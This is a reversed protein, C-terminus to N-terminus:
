VAAKPKRTGVRADPDALQAGVAFLDRQIAHLLDRSPGSPAHARAVGVAASLEDVDGYAAVRPDDKHVRSGDILGTEGSDGTKTYIKVLSCDAELRPVPEFGSRPM